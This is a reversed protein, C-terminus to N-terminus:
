VIDFYWFVFAVLGKVPSASFERCQSTSKCFFDNFISRESRVPLLCVLVHGLSQEKLHAM